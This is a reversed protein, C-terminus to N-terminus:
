GAEALLQDRLERAARGPGSLVPLGVLAALQDAAPSLSYQSLLIADPMWGDSAADRVAAALSAVLSATNGVASAELAGAALIGRVRPGAQRESQFAALRTQADALAVPRSSLLALQGYGATTAAEFAADDAAHVPAAVVADMAHAVPGYMSCTLLVGDAGGELAYRILRSMRDRLDETPGGSDIAETLLRDDLLNWLRAEPFEQRFANVSPVIAAATAGVLAVLPSPM